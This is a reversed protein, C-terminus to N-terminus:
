AERDTNTPDFFAPAFNEHLAWPEHMPIRRTISKLTKKDLYKSENWVLKGDTVLNEHLPLPKIEDAVEAPEAPLAPQAQPGNMHIQPATETHNGGSRIDTPGGATFRNYGGTTLNYNGQATTIKTNGELTIMDFNYRTNIRTNAFSYIHLGKIAETQNAVIKDNQINTHSPVVDGGAEKEQVSVRMNGMVKIDLNGQIKEDNRVHIKGNRGILLNFNEVSEIQVRGSEYGKADFINKSEFPKDKEKYEATAKINVNRGAEINVDRNSRINLDVNSHISISDEAFIDIKGNSTLEIWTTGRSNGIYILDESNHMLLQHGTRTRVRFYENYPITPEGKQGKLVEAYAVPGQSAPQIRQYREDGDDMVLQTGGLRSVPVPSKTPSQKTGVLAKKAGPRKDRPGPTSIGFVMSPTERRSTSTTPGRIDDELLGQALFHEAIPHLPKKMKEPNIQQEKANLRRNIEATPLPQKTNYKKKDSSDLAVQDTAGLAPVMHNALRSPVCGIWYGQTPDGNVFVVLVTIGIDPPVFWMGYSKQTDNFGELTNEEGTNRGMFEFPTYGFFPMACRVPYTQQDDGIDNGQERLITVELGGMFTPDLHGIVKARYVGAGMDKRQSKTNTSRRQQSM